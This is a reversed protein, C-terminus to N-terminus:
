TQRCVGCVICPKGTESLLVIETEIGASVLKEACRNLLIHTNGNKRPSGSILLAKM